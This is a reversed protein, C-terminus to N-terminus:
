VLNESFDHIASVARKARGIAIAYHVKSRRWGGGRRAPLFEVIEKWGGDAALRLAIQGDPAVLADNSHFVDVLLKVLTLNGEAAAVM